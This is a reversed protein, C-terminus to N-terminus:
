AGFNTETLGEMPTKTGIRIFPLTDVSKEEKKKLKLMKTGLDRLSTMSM